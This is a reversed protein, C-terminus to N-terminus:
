KLDIRINSLGQGKGWRLRANIPFGMDTSFEFLVDSCEIKKVDTITTITLPTSWKCYFNGNIDGNIQLWYDKEKLVNKATALVEAKLTEMDSDSLVLDRVMEDRETFCGDKTTIGEGRFKSRLEKGFPTSPDGQRMADKSFWTEYDPPTSTIGYKTSLVGSAIYRDYWQRAYLHGLTYTKGTGNYFQVGGTWPPLSSDISKYAKSGKHEVKYWVASVQVEFDYHTKRGGATLSQRAAQIDLGTTTKFANRLQTGCVSHQNNLAEVIAKVDAEENKKAEAKTRITAKIKDDTVSDNSRKEMEVVAHEIINLLDPTDLSQLTLLISEMDIQVITSTM